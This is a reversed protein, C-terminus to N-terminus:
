NSPLTLSHEVVGVRSRQFGRGDFHGLRVHVGFHDAAKMTVNARVNASTPSPTASCVRYTEDTNIGFHRTSDDLRIAM